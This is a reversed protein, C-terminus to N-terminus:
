LTHQRLGGSCRVVLFGKPTESVKISGPELWRRVRLTTAEASSRPSPAASAAAVSNNAM